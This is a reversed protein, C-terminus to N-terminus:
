CFCGTNDCEGPANTFPPWPAGGKVNNMNKRDLKSITKKNLSLKRKFEKKKM